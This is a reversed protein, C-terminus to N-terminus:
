RGGVNRELEVHVGPRRVGVLPQILVCADSLARQCVAVADKAGQSASRSRPQRPSRAGPVLLAGRIAWRSDDSVLSAEVAGRGPKSSVSLYVSRCAPSLRVALRGPLSGRDSLTSGIRTLSSRM